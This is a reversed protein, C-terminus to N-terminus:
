SGRLRLLEKVEDFTASDDDLKDELADLRTRPPPPPQEPNPDDLVAQVQARTARGSLNPTEVTYTGLFAGDGDYNGTTLISFDDASGDSKQGLLQGLAWSSDRRYQEATITFTAM